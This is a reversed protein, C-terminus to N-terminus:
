DIIWGYPPVQMDLVPALLLLVAVFIKAKSPMRTIIEINSKETTL